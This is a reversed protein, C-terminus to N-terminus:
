YRPKTLAINLAHEHSKCYVRKGNDFIVTENKDIWCDHLMIDMSRMDSRSKSDSITIDFPTVCASMFGANCLYDVCDIIKRKIQYSNIKINESYRNKGIKIGNDLLYAVRSNIDTSVNNKALEDVLCGQELTFCCKDKCAGWCDHESIFRLVNM